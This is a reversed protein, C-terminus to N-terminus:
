GARHLQARAAATLQGPLAFSLGGQRQRQGTHYRLRRSVLRLTAPHTLLERHGAGRIEVREGGPLVHRRPPTALADDAAIISLHPPTFRRYSGRSLQRLLASSPALDAALASGAVLQAYPLGAFPAALSITQRIRDDGLEQAYYRAIIGGVSHGILHLHLNQPLDRLIEGLRRALTIIGPGVPQSVTIVATSKSSLRRRLPQFGAGSDWLGPLCIVVDSGGTLAVGASTIHGYRLRWPQPALSTPQPVLPLDSIAVM